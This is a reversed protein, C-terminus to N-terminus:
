GNNVSSTTSSIASTAFVTSTQESFTYNGLIAPSLHASVAKPNATTSSSLGSHLPSSCTVLRCGNPAAEVTIRACTMQEAVKCATELHLTSRPSIPACLIQSTWSDVDDSYGSGSRYCKTAALAMYSILQDATHEDLCARSELISRMTGVVQDVNIIDESFRSGKESVIHDASLRCGSESIAWVFLEGSQVQKGYMKVDKRHPLIDINVNIPIDRNVLGSDILQTQITSRVRTAVQDADIAANGIILANVSKIDGREVLRIPRITLGETAVLLVHGGGRPYFGRKEIFVSTEVGMLSLLPSLVHIFHDIAPAFATNTGGRIHIHARSQTQSNPTEYMLGGALVPMIIQIVLSISGASGIDCEFTRVVDYCPQPSSTCKLNIVSSGEVNGECMDRCICMLLSIGALHQRGLGPKARGARINIISIDKRMITALSLSMRILQGGGEGQGGDIVEVTKTTIDM